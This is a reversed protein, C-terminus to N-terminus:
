FFESIDWIAGEEGLRNKEEEALRFTELMEDSFCDPFCDWLNLQTGTIGDDPFRPWSNRERFDSIYSWLDDQGYGYDDDDSFMLYEPDYELWNYRAFKEIFEWDKRVPIENYAAKAQIIDRGSIEMTIYSQEPADKKRIFVINTKGEAVSDIYGSLCNDQQCSEDFMELVTLPTKVFYEEDEFRYGRNNHKAIGADKMDKQKLIQILREMKDVADIVDTAKPIKKYPNYQGLRPALEMFKKYCNYEFGVRCQGLRGYLKKNFNYKNLGGITSYETLYLWQFRNPYNDKGCYDSFKEYTKCAIERLEAKKIYEDLGNKDLIRILNLPMSLITEPSSGIINYEEVHHIYRAINEFGAKYLIERVGCRHTSFYIRKLYEGIESTAYVRIPVDPCYESFAEQLNVFDEIDIELSTKDCHNLFVEEDSESLMYGKQIIFRRYARPSYIRENYFVIELYRDGRLNTRLFGFVQRTKAEANSKLSMLMICENSLEPYIERETKKDIIPTKFLFRELSNYM